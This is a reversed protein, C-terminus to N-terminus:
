IRAIRVKDIHNVSIASRNDAAAKAHILRHAYNKFYFTKNISQNSKLHSVHVKKGVAAHRLGAAFLRGDLIDPVRDAFLPCDKITLKYFDKKM